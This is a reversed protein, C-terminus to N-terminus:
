KSGCADRFPRVTVTSRTLARFSRWVFHLLRQLFVKFTKVKISYQNESVEACCSLSNQLSM